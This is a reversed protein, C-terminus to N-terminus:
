EEEGRGWTTMYILRTQRWLGGPFCCQTSPLHIKETKAAMKTGGERTKRPHSRWRTSVTVAVFFLVDYIYM